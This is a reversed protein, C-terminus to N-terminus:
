FVPPRGPATRIADKLMARTLGMDALQRDDLSSLEAFAHRDAIYRSLKELIKTLM